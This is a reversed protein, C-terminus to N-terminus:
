MLRDTNRYPWLLSHFARLMSAYGAGDANERNQYYHSVMLLIALRVPEPTPSPFADMLCFDLAVSLAMLLLSELYPDEVDQEIRLHAKLEDLTVPM